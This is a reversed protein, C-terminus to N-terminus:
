CGSVLCVLRSSRRTATATPRTSQHHQAGNRRVMLLEGAKSVFMGGESWRNEDIACLFLLRDNSLNVVSSVSPVLGDLGDWGLRM